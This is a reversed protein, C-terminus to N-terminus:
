QYVQRRLRSNHHHRVRVVFAALRSNKTLTRPRKILRKEPLQLVFAGPGHDRGYEQVGSPHCFKARATPPFAKPGDTLRALSRRCDPYADCCRVRRIHRHAQSAPQRERAASSVQKAGCGFSRRLQFTRARYGGHGATAAAQDSAPPAADGEVDRGGGVAASAARRTILPLVCGAAVTSRAVWTAPWRSSPFATRAESAAAKWDAREALGGDIPPM